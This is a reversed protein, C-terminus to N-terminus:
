VVPGSVGGGTQVGSHKHTDSIDKGNSTVTNTLSTAGQVDLTDKMVVPVNITVKDSEFVAVDVGKIKLTASGDDNWKIYSDRYFNGQVVEGEKLNDPRIDHKYALGMLSDEDGMSSWVSVISGKPAVAHHGYGYLPEFRLSAGQSQMIAQPYLLDDNGPITVVGRRIINKANNIM